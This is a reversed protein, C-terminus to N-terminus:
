TVAARGARSFNRQEARDLVEHLVLAADFVDIYLTTLPALGFRILDPERFDGIVGRAILAQMVAYAEPHAWAVQAGRMAPELPSALRLPFMATIPTVCAIFLDGLRGAKTELDALHIGDWVDLAADLAAIALISPSSCLLKRVGDAPSFDDDFSFPSAHGLWGTLPSRIAPLHRAAVFLFSPAGPGANLFKYGCGVALDADAANLDVAIAGASHCIDWLVLAGCAHACATLAAMDWREATKYHVHSLLLLAVTDDMAAAVEGRPVIRLTIDGLLDRLGQLMYLDTPFNGRESVITRRGPRMSLAGAILKFLNISATDAVLVEDAGAGILPAIRAGLRLPADIWGHKNWGGILDRGWQTQVVEHMHAATHRPLAGLSNGDLYIIGPPLEFRERRPALPDAQDMAVCQARTIPPAISM